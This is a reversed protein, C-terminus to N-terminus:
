IFIEVNSVVVDTSIKAITAKQYIDGEGPKIESMFITLKNGVAPVYTTVPAAEQAITMSTCGCLLCSLILSRIM